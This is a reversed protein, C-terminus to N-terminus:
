VRVKMLKERLDSLHRKVSGDIITNGIRIQLGGLLDPDLELYLNMKKNLKAELDKKILKLIDTDVPYSTRLLADVAGGHSYNSRVYDCIDIILEIRGKELLLKLFNRIEECFYDKLTRDLIECKQAYAIHPNYFFEEFEKESHLLIKLAKLEEVAKEHGITGKVYSMFAESYRKVILKRRIM